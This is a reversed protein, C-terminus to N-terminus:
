NVEQGAATGTAPVPCGAFCFDAEIPSLSVWPKQKGATARVVELGVRNFALFIGLGPQRVAEALAASYPSNAGTGDVAVNGPSTAFAVVAGDPAGMEALGNELGRVGRTPFPNNRCADLIVIKLKTGAGDMQRLVAGADLMQFELDQAQRPNADIPVLWNVGNVQLGHGSYYFLAVSAGSISRGFEEVVHNFATKDLDLQPGGGVLEFAQEQLSQAILRADNDPNPLAGVYRYGSNGVVLAIRGGAKSGSPPTVPGAAAEQAAVLDINNELREQFRNLMTQLDGLGVTITSGAKCSGPHSTVVRMRATSDSAAPADSFSILDGTVVSCSEDTEEETTDIPDAVQFVFKQARASAIVDALSLPRQQDHLEIAEQVQERFQLRVTSPVAVGVISASTTPASSAQKAQLRTVAPQWDGLEQRLKDDKVAADVLDQQLETLEQTLEQNEVDTAMSSNTQRAGEDLASSIQLDGMLDLPNKYPDSSTAVLPTVAAATTAAAAAAPPTPATGFDAVPSPCAACAPGPVIPNQFPSPFLALLPPSLIAPRYVFTEIGHLPVVNFTQFVPKPHEVVLGGVTNAFVTRRVARGPGGLNVFKEEFLRQGGPLVADRLGDSHVTVTPLGPASRTAFGRGVVVKRGDLYIHTETGAKDSIIKYASVHSAGTPSTRLSVVTRSGDANQRTLLARGPGAFEAKTSIGLKFVHRAGIQQPRAAQGTIPAHQFTQEGARDERSRGAQKRGPEEHETRLTQQRQQEQQARLAQRRQQGTRGATGTATETRASGAAEQRALPTQQRQQEQRAQLMQQRQPGTPGATGTAAAARASGAAEQQASPAQQRRQEQGARLMQQWQQGTPGATGTAAAARASGQQARLMQEQHMRFMQLQQMRLMQQQQLTMQQRMQQQQQM